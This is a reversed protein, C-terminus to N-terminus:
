IQDALTLSSMMRLAKFSISRMFSRIFVVFRIDHIVLLRVGQVNGGM